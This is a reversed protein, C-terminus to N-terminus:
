KGEEFEKVATKLSEVDLSGRTKLASVARHLLSPLHLSHSGGSCSNSDGNYGLAAAIAM